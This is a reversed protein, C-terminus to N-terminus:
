VHHVLMLFINEGCLECVSFLKIKVQVKAIEGRRARRDRAYRATFEHRFLLSRMLIDPLETGESRNVMCVPPVNM